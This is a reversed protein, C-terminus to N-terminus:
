EKALYNIVDITTIVGVVNPGDVIVLANREKLLKAPDLLTTRREVKPLPAEMIEEVKMSLPAGEEVKKIVSAVTVSGVQIGSQVVPLQSIDFKTLKSIAESLKDDPSLGIVLRLERPKSLLIDNVSVRTGKAKIFGEEAMWDDNYIKNLYSRGTDPLIVVVTEGRRLRRAVKIAASAAAGASGGAFIGEERALRRAMLFAEKDTVTVFEDILSMDLTSPLFDEGIGEVKYPSAKASRGKFKAALISGQPDVGVVRVEPKKEKLHRAAGSITGGTGVGAVLVDVKGGTQEWIEPGTTKYHADPNAMNEYQNPMFTRPRERTIRKAVEVYSTPHDTPVKSPTV